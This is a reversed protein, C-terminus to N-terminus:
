CREHFLGLTLPTRPIQAISTKSLFGQGADPQHRRRGIVVAFRALRRDVGGDDLIAVTATLGGGDTKGM